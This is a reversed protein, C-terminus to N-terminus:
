ELLNEILTGITARKEPSLKRLNKIMKYEDPDVLIPQFESQIDGHFRNDSTGLLYEVCCGLYISLKVILSIDPMTKGTEWQSVATQHVNMEKALELQSIGLEKRLKKIRNM